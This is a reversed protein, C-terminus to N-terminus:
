YVKWQYESNERLESLLFPKVMHKELKGKTRAIYALYNKINLIYNYYIGNLKIFCILNLLM